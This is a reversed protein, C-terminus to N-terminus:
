DAEDELLEYQGNSIDAITKNIQEAIQQPTADRSSGPFLKIDAANLEDAAFLRHKAIEIQDEM